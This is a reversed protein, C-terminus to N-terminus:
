KYLMEWKRIEKIMKEKLSKPELVIVSPTMTRVWRLFKETDKVKIKIDTYNSKVDLCMNYKVAYRLAKEKANEEHFVRFKVLNTKNNYKEKSIKLTKSKIISEDLDEKLFDLRITERFGKRLFELKWTYADLDYYIRILKVSSTVNGNKNIINVIEKEEIFDYLSIIKDLNEKLSIDPIKIVEKEKMKEFQEYYKDRLLEKISRCVEINETENSNVINYLEFEEYLDLTLFCGITYNLNKKNKEVVNFKIELDKFEYVREKLQLYTLNIEEEYEVDKVDKVDEMDEDELNEEVIYDQLFVEKNRYIFYIEGIYPNCFPSSMLNELYDVSRELTVYNQSAFTELTIGNESKLLVLMANIIRTMNSNM